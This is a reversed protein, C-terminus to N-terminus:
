AEEVDADPQEAPRIRDPPVLESAAKLQKAQASRRPRAPGALGRSADATWHVERPFARRTASGMEAFGCVRLASAKFKCCLLANLVRRVQQRLDHAQQWTFSPYCARPSTELHFKSLTTQDALQLLFPQSPPPPPYVLDHDSQELHRGAPSRLSHKLLISVSDPRPLHSM